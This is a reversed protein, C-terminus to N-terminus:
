RYFTLWNTYYDHANKRIYTVDSNEWKRYWSHNWGGMDLYLAHKVGTEKLMDVFDSYKVSQNSQIICLNGDLECLARYQFSNKRFHPQENFDHIIMNQAVGMGTSDAAMKLESAYDKLLFKWKGNYWVFAGTNPKCTYGRHFEGKSVHYGAINTHKFELITEGTFAAPCCFIAKDDYEPSSAGCVLDISKYQPYYITLGENSDDIVILSDAAKYGADIWGNFGTALEYVTYGDKVLIDAATKSRNGSRCYLAVPTEKDLLFNAKDLFSEDKVNINYETNPIHGSEYEEQTRVDVLVVNSSSILNSLEEPTISNYSPKTIQYSVLFVIGILCTAMSILTVKKM